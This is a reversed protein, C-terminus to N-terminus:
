IFAKVKLYVCIDDKGGHMVGVVNNGLLLPSGSSGVNRKCNCIYYNNEECIIHVSKFSLSLKPELCRKDENIEIICSKLQKKDKFPITSLHLPSPVEHLDFIAVDVEKSDTNVDGEGIYLLRLDKVMIKQGRLIIYLDQVDKIVHAATIFFGDAVFGQGVAERGSLVPFICENLLSKNMIIQILNKNVQLALM